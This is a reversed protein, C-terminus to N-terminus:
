VMEDTVGYEDLELTGEFSMGVSSAIDELVDYQKQSLVQHRSAFAFFDRLWRSKSVPLDQNARLKNFLEFFYPTTFYRM